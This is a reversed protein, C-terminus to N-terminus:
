MIYVNIVFASYEIPWQLVCAVKNAHDYGVIVQSITRVLAHTMASAMLAM